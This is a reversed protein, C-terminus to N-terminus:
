SRARLTNELRYVMIEARSVYDSKHSVTIHVCEKVVASIGKLKAGV